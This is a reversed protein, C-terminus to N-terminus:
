IAWIYQPDAKVRDTGAKEGNRGPNPKECVM